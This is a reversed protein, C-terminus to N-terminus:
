KPRCNTCRSRKSRRRPPFTFTFTFTYLNLYTQIPKPKTLNLNLNPNTKHKTANPKFRCNRRLLIYDRVQAHLTGNATRQEQIKKQLAEHQTSLTQLETQQQQKSTTQQNQLATLKQNAATLNQVQKQLEQTIGTQDKLKIDLEAKTSTLSRLQEQANALQNGAAQQGAKLANAQEETKASLKQNAQQQQQLAM